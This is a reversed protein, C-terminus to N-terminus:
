QQGGTAKALAARAIHSIVLRLKTAQDASLPDSRWETLIAIQELAFFMHPAADILNAKAVADLTAAELRAPGHTSADM